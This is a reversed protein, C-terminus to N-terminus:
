LLSLLFMILICSPFSPISLSLVMILSRFNLKTISKFVIHAMNHILLPIMLWITLLVWTLPSLPPLLTVSISDLLLITLTMSSFTTSLILKPLIITHMVFNANSYLLVLFPHLPLPTPLIPFILQLLNPLNFIILFSLVQLLTFLTFRSTHHFFIDLITDLTIVIGILPIKMLFNSLLPMLALLPFLFKLNFALIM